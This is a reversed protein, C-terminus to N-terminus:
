SAHMCKLADTALEAHLGMNTLYDVVSKARNESLLQNYSASGISDTHASLEIQVQPCGTLTYIIDDLVRTSDSLLEASDTHFNVGQMSEVVGHCPDPAASVVPVPPAVPVQAVPEAALAAALGPKEKMKKRGTRYMLGLQAYRADKDFAVGEARLGVGIPTMYEVGAGFLVHTNNVKRFPVDDVPTNELSGIGLRGFATLGQRRYRHRNGGAYLLASLGNIHYNIRGSDSGNFSLGASGLDASHAEVSL